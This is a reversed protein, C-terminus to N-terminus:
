LDKMWWARRFYWYAENEGYWEGENVTM